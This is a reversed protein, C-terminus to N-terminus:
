DAIVSPWNRSSLPVVTSVPDTIGFLFLGGSAPTGFASRRESVCAPRTADAAFSRRRGTRARWTTRRGPVAALRPHGVRRGDPRDLAGWTGTRPDFWTFRYRARPRWGTARGRQAKNEFYLLGFTKDPTRMLFSWGDLGTESSGPAKRRRCTPPRSSAPRPLAHGRVARVHRTRAHRRRGTGCRRGSTPGAAAAARRREDRRLRRHRARPGRPRGVARLRVDARALLLQRSGLRVRGARRRRRQQRAGLGHLAARSEGDADAADPPVAARDGPLDRPRAAQQGTSHMTIWPAKEGTGFTTDTAHDILSTVPQGFPMPGYKRYHYTIAENFEDATLSYNPLYIDFHVKSFIMNFAGYRAVMYQLFRAFSVNFDYYAKWPPAVDRRITELMAVFGQDSLHRMKGDLSRFFEPVIRDYDPLGESGPVIEFPRYGREDHMSKATPKIRGAGDRRVDGVRQPLLRGEQGRLHRSVSRVDWTPFAAIMSVSNFGQRKRLAVAQEFTVGPAADYNPDAAVGTLPLRWTM